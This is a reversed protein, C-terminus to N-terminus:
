PSGADAPPDAAADPSDSTSADPLSADRTSVVPPVSPDSMMPPPPDTDDPLSADLSSMPPDPETVVPCVPLDAAPEVGVDFTGRTRCGLEPGRGTFVGHIGGEEINGEFDYTTRGDTRRETLTFKVCSGDVFGGTVSAFENTVTGYDEDAVLSFDHNQIRAVFRDNEGDPEEDLALAGGPIFCARVLVEQLNVIELQGNFTDTPCDERTGTARLLWSGNLDSGEGGETCMPVFEDPDTCASLALAAAGVM